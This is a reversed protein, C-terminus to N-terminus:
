KKIISKDIIEIEKPTLKYLKYVINDIRSNLLEIEKIKKELQASMMKDVLLILNNSNEESIEKPIPFQKLEKVKFQPYIKRQLKNFKKDFWFSILKSNLISLIIKFNIKSKFIVMSNIDNYYDQNTYTAEISYPLKSPIQRVLIREGSFPVSKRMEALWEGYSLYHGSWNILYRCVNAGELYKGFTKNKKNNAHFVRNNKEYNTQKPKGKGKQYAKLGTSVIAVKHDGLMNSNTNIKEIINYYETKELTQFNIIKEKSNNFFDSTKEIMEQFNHNILKIFKIKNKIQKDTKEYILVSTDVDKEKFVKDYSNVIITNKTNNLVFNRFKSNTNITLWNNPIIFGFYGNNDLLNYAQECFMIYTNLQYESLKFKNYYYKKEQNTFGENRTFIYPPNGIICDFKENFNKNWDFVNLRKLENNDPILDGEIYDSEILSNGCKINNKMDPLILESLKIEHQIDPCDELMKLYLSMQAVECAQLDIDVGFIHRILIEKRTKKKLKGNLLANDSKAKKSHNTYYNLYWDLLYQYAKVLFSGSGSSIDIIKIKTINEFSNNEILKILTNKVIYDVIYDPTYTVDPKESIKVSIKENEPNVKIIKGLFKEYISGLIEIPIYKFNYIVQTNVTDYLKSFINKLVIDDVEIKDVDHENFILGNYAKRITIFEQIMKYYINEKETLDKLVSEEIKRDELFKSFIIRDLIRQTYETLIEGDINTINKKNNIYINIALQKRWDELENLFDEDITLFKRKKKEEDLLNEM